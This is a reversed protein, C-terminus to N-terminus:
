NLILISKIFQRHKKHWAEFAHQPSDGKCGCHALPPYNPIATYFNDEKEIHVVVGIYRGDRYFMGLEPGAVEHTTYEYM